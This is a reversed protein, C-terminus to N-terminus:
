SNLLCKQVDKLFYDFMFQTQDIKNLYNHIQYIKAPNFLRWINKLNTYYGKYGAGLYEHIASLSNVLIPTRRVICEVIANSASCDLLNLLVVTKTLLKDYDDNDLRKIRTVSNYNSQLCTKVTAIKAKWNTPWIQSESCCPEGSKVMAFSPAGLEEHIYKNMFKLMITMNRCPPRCICSSNVNIINSSCTCNLTNIICWKDPHIYNGMKPGELVQKKGWPLKVSYIAYSNRLWAGIQTLTPNDLWQYINFCISPIETPHKLAVVQINYRYSNLKKIVYRRLRNSLVILTKCFKLSDVFESIEFLKETNYSSYDNNFPTHHLFGIWSQRYPIVGQKVLDDHHWHFTADIYLDCLIGNPKELAKLIKATDFWGSRHIGAFSELPQLFRIYNGLPPQLLQVDDHVWKIMEDLKPETSLSKDRKLTEVFGYLYKEYHDFGAVNILAHKAVEEPQLQTDLMQKCEDILVAHAISLKHNSLKPKTDIHTPIKFNKMNNSCTKYVIKTQERLQPLNNLATKLVNPFTNLENDNVINNTFNLESMLIQTKPKLALSVFPIGQIISFIHAHYRLCVTLTMDAMHQMLTEVNDILPAQLYPFKKNIFQDGEHEQTSINMSFMVIDYQSSIEAFTSQLITIMADNVAGNALFVGIKPKTSVTLLEIKQQPKLLFALDYISQVNNYGFIEAVDDHYKRHRLVISDFVGLYNENLTSPYTIGISLAIVPGTFDKILNKLKDLFWDNIVDGGGYIILEIGKPISELEYPNAFLVSKCYHLLGTITTKYQEDGLNGSNYYGLVLAM